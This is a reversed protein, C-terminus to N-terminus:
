LSREVLTRAAAEIAAPTGAVVVDRLGLAAAGDPGLDDRGVIVACDVGAAAARGSVESVAKGEATQSDIRGEGTLVLSSDALARDFGIADLVFAAGPVLRADLRAWLAGALGGAAGGMPLGRPDRPLAAALRDLRAALMEVQDPTAGKQPAFIAAAREFTTSVDCVVTISPRLGAGEVVELIGAGGDTTASGGACLIVERAGDAIAAVILEGTGRTTAAVADLEEEALTGMGSAAAVDVAVRGDALLAFSARVPRGLADSVAASRRSGGLAALLVEATGDGGDGVPMARPESGARRVGAAMAAAIAAAEYTGKFKDPAILVHDRM